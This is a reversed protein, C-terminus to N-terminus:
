KPSKIDITPAPMPSILIEELAMGSLKVSHFFFRNQEIIM